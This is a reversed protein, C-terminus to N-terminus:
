VRRESDEGCLGHCRRQGASLHTELLTGTGAFTFLLLGYFEPRAEIVAGSDDASRRIALHTVAVM